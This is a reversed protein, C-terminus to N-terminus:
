LRATAGNGFSRAAGGGGDDKGGEVDLTGLAAVLAAVDEDKHAASLTVRLRSTGRPVTPPRIAPVHFGLALLKASADLAATESGCVISVVPSCLSPYESEGREGGGGLARDLRAVHRRLRRRLAAGEGEGEEGGGCVRLAASAAAVAPAPLATSFVQARAASVLLAKVDRTCAVFGGISGVAKSLTGVHVDVHAAVGMAECAGGGREGCVLTAHAEDVMLMVDPRRRRLAALAPLPAFVGDMSFLSDTVVLKRPADSANLLAELHAADRHRYTSVRAGRRSALRCGDVISAHNLEDSFVHCDKGDALAPISGLNAAYGTPFLLCEETGKLAALSKELARHQMTYGCVLPSSRPGSGWRMAADAAAFRVTKHTALGLYDNSSFVNLLTTRQTNRRRTTNSPHNKVGPHVNRGGENGGSAGGEEEGSDNDASGGLDPADTAWARLTDEAVRVRTHSSVSSADDGGSVTRSADHHLRHEADELFSAADDILALSNDDFPAIPRLSRLTRADSLHALRRRTWEVWRGGEAEAAGGMHTHNHCVTPRPTPDFM